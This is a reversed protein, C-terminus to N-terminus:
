VSLNPDFRGKAADITTQTIATDYITAGSSTATVGALVRIVQSNALTVRIAEDLGLAMTAGEWEPRTVTPPEAVEPIRAHPLSEVSPAQLTREDRRFFQIVKEQARARDAGAALCFAVAIAAALVPGPLSRGVKPPAM